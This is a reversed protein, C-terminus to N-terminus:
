KATIVGAQFLQAKVLTNLEKPNLENIQDSFITFVLDYPEGIDKEILRVSEYIRRRIRNRLVASRNVKKNV